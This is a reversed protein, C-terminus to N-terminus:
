NLSIKNVTQLIALRTNPLYLEVVHVSVWHPNEELAESADEADLCSFSQDPNPHEGDESAPGVLYFVELEPEEVKTKPLWQKLRNRM